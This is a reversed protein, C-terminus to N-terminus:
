ELVRAMLAVEAQGVDQARGARGVALACRLLLGRGCLEQLVTFFLGRRARVRGRLRAVGRKARETCKGWTDSECTPSQIFARSRFDKKESTPTARKEVNATPQSVTSPTPSSM